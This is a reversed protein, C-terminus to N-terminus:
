GAQALSNHEVTKHVVTKMQPWTEMYREMYFQYERHAEENPVYKRDIRVMKEAAEEFDKFIGAGVGAIM